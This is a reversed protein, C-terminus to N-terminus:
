CVLHKRNYFLIMRRARQTDARVFASDKGGSLARTSTDVFDEAPRRREHLLTRKMGRASHNGQPTAVPM